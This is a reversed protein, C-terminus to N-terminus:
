LEGIQNILAQVIYQIVDVVVSNGFQKYCQPVTDALQYDDPFGM